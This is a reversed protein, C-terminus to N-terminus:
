RADEINITEEIIAYSLYNDLEETPLSQETKFDKASLVGIDVKVRM